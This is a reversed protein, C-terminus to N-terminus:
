TCNKDTLIENKCLPAVPLSFLHKHVEMGEPGARLEWAGAKEQGSGQERKDLGQLLRGEAEQLGLKERGAIGTGWLSLARPLLSNHNWCRVRSSWICKGPYMPGAATREDTRRDTGRTNFQFKHLLRPKVLKQWGSRFILKLDWIVFHCVLNQFAFQFTPFCLKAEINAVCFEQKGPVEGLGAEWYKCGVSCQSVETWPVVASSLWTNLEFVQLDCKTRKARM